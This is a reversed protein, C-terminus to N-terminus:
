KHKIDACVCVFVDDHHVSSSWLPNIILLEIKLLLSRNSCVSYQHFGANSQLDYHKDFYNYLAPTVRKNNSVVYLSKM